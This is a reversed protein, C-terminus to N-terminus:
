FLRGEEQYWSQQEKASRYLQSIERFRPSIYIKPTEWKILRCFNKKSENFSNDLWKETVLAGNMMSEKALKQFHAVKVICFVASNALLEVAFM